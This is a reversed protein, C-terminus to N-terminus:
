LCTRRREGAFTSLPVLEAPLMSLGYLKIPTPLPAGRLLSMTQIPRQRLERLLHSYLPSSSSMLKSILPKVLRRGLLLAGISGATKGAVSMATSPVLPFIFGAALEVPTTPLCLMTWMSLLLVYVCHGLFGLGKLQQLGLVIGGKLAAFAATAAPLM